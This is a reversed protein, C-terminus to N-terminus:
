FPKVQALYIIGASVMYIGIHVLLAQPKQLNENSIQSGNL